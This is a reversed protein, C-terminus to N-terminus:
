ADLGLWSELIDRSITVTGSSVTLVAEKEIGREQLAMTIRTRAERERQIDDQRKQERAEEEAVRENRISEYDDWFHAIDRARIEGTKEAGVNHGYTSIVPTGDDNLYKVEVVTSARESKFDRREKRVKIVKVRQAKPRYEEGRGREYFYAYDHGAWLEQANM